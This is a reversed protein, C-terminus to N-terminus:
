IMPDFVANSKAGVVSAPSAPFLDRKREGMVEERGVAAERWDCRREDGVCGGRSKLDHTRSLCPGVAAAAAADVCVRVCM